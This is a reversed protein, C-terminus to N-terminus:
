VIKRRTFHSLIGVKRQGLLPCLPHLTTKKRKVLFSFIMQYIRFDLILNRFYLSMWVLTQPFNGSLYSSLRIAYLSPAICRTKIKKDWGWIRLTLFVIGLTSYKTGIKWCKEQFIAFNLKTTQTFIDVIPM